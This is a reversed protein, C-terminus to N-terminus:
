RVCYFALTPGPLVTRQPDAYQKRKKQMFNPNLLWMFTVSGIELFFNIIGLFPHIHSKQAWFLMKPSKELYTIQPKKLNYWIVPM